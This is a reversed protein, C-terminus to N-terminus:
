VQKVEKRMNMSFFVFLTAMIIITTGVLTRNKITEGFLIFTATAMMVLRLFSYPMLINIPAHKYALFLVTVNMISLISVVSIIKLDSLDFPQWSSLAFPLSIIVTYLFTLFTQAFKDQSTTQLKCVIDYCAWMVAAFLAIMGGESIMSYGNPVIIIYAGIFSALIALACKYNLREGCFLVALLSTIVPTMYSVATADNASIRSLAELWSVM